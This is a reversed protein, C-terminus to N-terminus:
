IAVPLYLSYGIIFVFNSLCCVYQMVICGNDSLFLLNYINICPTRSLNSLKMPSFLFTSVVNLVNLIFEVPDSIVSRDALKM